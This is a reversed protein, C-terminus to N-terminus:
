EMQSQMIESYSRQQYGAPIQFEKAPINAKEIKVVDTDVERNGYEHKVSKLQFGAEWLKQYEASNELTFGMASNGLCGHFKQIMPVLPKYEKLIAADTTLWVEESLEGDVKVLYKVTNFGAIRGGKGDKEITVKHGSSQNGKGMMEKMLKRQEEPVAKLMQEMMSASGACYDDATGRWYIKQDARMFIMENEPGNFIWNVEESTGKLKGNSIFIKEGDQEHLIWGADAPLVMYLVAAFVVLLSWNKFM